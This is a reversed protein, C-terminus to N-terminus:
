EGGGAAEKLEKRFNVLKKLLQFWFPSGFSLLLATALWGFPTTWSFNNDKLFDGLSQHVNSDPKEWGIPLDFVDLQAFTQDVQNIMAKLSDPHDALSDHSSIFEDAAKSIQTVLLNDHQLEELLSFTDTNSFIAVGLGIIFLMRQIRQKYWISVSLMYQDFWNGINELLQDSNESFQALNQLVTKTDGAPMAAVSQKFNELPNSEAASSSNEEAPQNANVVDALAMSFVKAPIHVPLRGTSTHLAKVQPHAYINELLTKGAATNGLLTAIGNFLFKGRLKLVYVVIENIASTSVSLLLLIFLFSIGLEIYGSETM